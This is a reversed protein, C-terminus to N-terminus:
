TRSLRNNDRRNKRFSKRNVTKGKLFGKKRCTTESDMTLSNLLDRQRKGISTICVKTFSSIRMFLSRTLFASKGLLSNRKKLRPRRKSYRSCGRCSKRHMSPTWLHKSIMKNTWCTKNWKSHRLSTHNYRKNNMTHKNNAMSSTRTSSPTLTTLKCQVKSTHLNSSLHALQM